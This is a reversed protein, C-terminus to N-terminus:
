FDTLEKLCHRTRTRRRSWCSKWDEFRFSFLVISLLRDHDFRRGFRVQAGNTKDGSSLSVNMLSVNHLKVRQLQQVKADYQVRLNEYKAKLAALQSEVLHRRDEVESFISNGKSNPVGSSMKLQEIEVEQEQITERLEDIKKIYSSVECEKGELAIEADRRKATEQKLAESTDNLRSELDSIGQELQQKEQVLELKEIQAKELLNEVEEDTKEEQNISLNQISM